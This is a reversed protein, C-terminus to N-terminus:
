ELCIVYSSPSRREPVDLKRILEVLVEVRKELPLPDGRLTLPEGETISQPGSLGYIAHRYITYYPETEENMMIDLVGMNVLRAPHCRLVIGRLQNM